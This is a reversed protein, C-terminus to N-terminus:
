LLKWSSQKHSHQHSTSCSGDMRKLLTNNRSIMKFIALRQRSKHPIKSRRANELRQVPLVVRRKPPHILFKKLNRNCHLLRREKNERGSSRRESRLASRDRRSTLIPSESSPSTSSYMSRM